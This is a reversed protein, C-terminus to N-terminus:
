FIERIVANKVVSVYCNMVIEKYNKLLFKDYLKLIYRNQKEITVKENEVSTLIEKTEDFDTNTKTENTSVINEVEDLSNESELAFSVINDVENECGTEDCVIENENQPFVNTENSEIVNSVNVNTSTTPKSYTTTWNNLTEDISTIKVTITQDGNATFTKSIVSENNITAKVAIARFILVSFEKTQKYSFKMSSNGNSAVIQYIPQEDDGLIYVIFERGVANNISVTITCNSAKANAVLTTTANITITTSIKSVDVPASGSSVTWGEFYYGTALNASIAVSRGEIYNGAGTVSSVGTGKNIVLSYVKVTKIANDSPTIYNTTDTTVARVYVTRSGTSEVITSNYDIGSSATQWTNNDISIQYSTAGTTATWTVVGENTVSLSTPMALKAKAITSQVSGSAPKYESNGVCYYYITYTGANTKSPITTSGSSSYNSATLQTGVAYYVAGQANSVSVLLQLNGNYTLSMETVMIPNTMKNVEWVAKVTANNTGFIYISANSNNDDASDLIAGEGSALIYKSLKYGTKTLQSALPLEYKTTKTGKATTPVGSALTGGNTDITMTQFTIGYDKVLAKLDLHIAVRVGIKGGVFVSKGDGISGVAEVCNDNKSTGSRLWSDRDDFSNSYNTSRDYGNLEWLGSRGDKEGDTGGSDNNTYFLYAGNPGPMIRRTGIFSANGDTINDKYFVEYNSPVWLKDNEYPNTSSNTSTWQPHLTNSTDMGNNIADFDGYCSSKSAGYTYSSDIKDLGTQNVGSQWDGPLDKPLVAYKDLNTYKSKLEDYTKNVFTRLESDKYYGNQPANGNFNINAYPACMYLTLIDQKDNVSRYVFQWMRGNFSNFLNVLLRSNGKKYEDWDEQKGYHGFSKASYYKTGDSGIKTPKSLISNDNLIGVLDSLVDENMSGNEVFLAPRNFSLGNNVTNVSGTHHSRSGDGVVFVTANKWDYYEEARYFNNADSISCSAGYLPMVSFVAFLCVVLLWLVLQTTASQKKYETKFNAHTDQQKEANHTVFYHKISSNCHSSKYVGGGGGEHLM